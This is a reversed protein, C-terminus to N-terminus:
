KNGQMKGAVVLKKYVTIAAIERICSKNDSLDGTSLQTKKKKHPKFDEWISDWLDTVAKGNWWNTQTLQLWVGKEHGYKKVFKMVRKFKSFGKGGKDFHKFNKPSLMM